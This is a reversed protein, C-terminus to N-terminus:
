DYFNWSIGFKVIGPNLPYNPVEIYNKDSFIAESVNYYMIFFRTRKLHFNAYINILPYNGVSILEQRYFQGIAPMYANAKYATHYRGDVGIQFKLVSFLTNTYYLNHYSALTPVALISQQSSSQYVGKNELHFNGIKFQLSVEAHAIEINDNYQTPMANTDFYIYNNIQEVGVKTSLSFHDSPFSIQASLQTRHTNGFNNDWIFHNSYYREMFFSPNSSLRQANAEIDINQNGVKISKGINGNLEYGGREDGFLMLKGTFTYNFSGEKKSIEAGTYLLTSTEKALTWDSQLGVNQEIDLEIFGRLGMVAWKKFGENLSIYAINKLLNYAATDNTATLDYFTNTYFSSATREYYKKQNQEYMLTHGITAIPQLKDDLGGFSYNQSAYLYFSNFISWSNSMNVAMNFSEIPSYLQQLDSLGGNEYHKLNNLAAIFHIGYKEGLYNGYLAGKLGNSAQYQYAGRGYIHDALLTINMKPNINVSFLGAINDEERYSFGGTHYTINSFPTTTNYFTIKDPSLFYDLYYDRFIFDHKLNKKLRHHYIKSQSPLGLNGLWSASITKQYVPFTSLHYNTFLTDPSFGMIEGYADDIHWTTIKKEIITSNALANLSGLLLVIIFWIQFQYKM